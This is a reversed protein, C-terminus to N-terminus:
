RSSLQSHFNILSQHFCSLHHSLCLENSSKTDDVSIKSTMATIAVAVVQGIMIGRIRVFTAEKLDVRDTMSDIEKIRFNTSNNQRFFSKRNLADFSNKFSSFQIFIFNWNHPELSTNKQKTPKTVCAILDCDLTRRKVVVVVNWQCNTWFIWIAHTRRPINRNRNCAACSM